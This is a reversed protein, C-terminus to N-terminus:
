THTLGVLRVYIWLVENLSACQTFKYVFYYRKSPCVCTLVLDKQAYCLKKNLFPSLLDMEQTKAFLFDEVVGM